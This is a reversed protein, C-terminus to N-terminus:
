VFLSFGFIIVEELSKQSSYARYSDSYLKSPIMLINDFEKFRLKASVRDAEEITM